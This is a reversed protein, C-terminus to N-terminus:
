RERTTRAKSTTARALVDRLGEAIEAPSQLAAGDQAVIVVDLGAARLREDCRFAERALRKFRNRAVARGFKRGVSVGLRSTDRENRRWM